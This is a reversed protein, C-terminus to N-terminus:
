ENEEGKLLLQASKVNIIRGYLPAALKEAVERLCMMKQQKSPYLETLAKYEAKHALIEEELRFVPDNIYEDWWAEASEITTGQRLLHINEHCKIPYPIEKIGPAYMADHYAFVIGLRIAMPFARKIKEFNPPYGDVIKTYYLNM